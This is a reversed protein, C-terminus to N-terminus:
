SERKRMLEDVLTLVEQLDFPKRLYADASAQKAREPLDDRSSMLVVPTHSGGNNKLRKAVADGWLHPLMIDLLVLHPNVQHVRQDVQSADDEGIVRYGEDSLITTLTELISQDDDVVLITNENTRPRM